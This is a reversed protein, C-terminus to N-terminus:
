GIKIEQMVTIYNQIGKLELSRGFMAIMPVILIILAAVVFIRSFIKYGTDGKARKM